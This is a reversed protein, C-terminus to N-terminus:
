LPIFFPTIFYFIFFQAPSAGNTWMPQTPENTHLGHQTLYVLKFLQDELVHANSV